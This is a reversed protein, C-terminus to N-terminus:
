LFPSTRIFPVCWLSCGIAEWDCRCGCDENALFDVISRQDDELYKSPLRVVDPNSLDTSTYVQHAVSCGPQRPSAAPNVLAGCGTSAYVFSSDSSANPSQPQPFLNPRSSTSPATSFHSTRVGCSLELYVDGDRPAVTPRRVPLEDSDERRHGGRMAGRRRLRSAEGTRLLDTLPM